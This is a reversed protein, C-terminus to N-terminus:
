DHSKPTWEKGANRVNLLEMHYQNIYCHWCIVMSKDTGPIPMSFCKTTAYPHISDCCPCWFAQGALLLAQKDTM